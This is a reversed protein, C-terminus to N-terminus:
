GNLMGSDHLYLKSFGFYLVFSDGRYSFFILKTIRNWNILLFPLFTQGEETQCFYDLPKHEIVAASLMYMTSGIM